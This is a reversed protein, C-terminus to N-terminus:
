TASTQGMSIREPPYYRIDPLSCIPPLAATAPLFDTALTAELSKAGYYNAVATESNFSLIDYLPTYDNEELFLRDLTFQATACDPLSVSAMLSTAVLPFARAYRM